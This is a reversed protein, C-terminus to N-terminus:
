KILYHTNNKRLKMNIETESWNQQEIWEALTTRLIPTIDTYLSTVEKQLDKHDSLLQALEKYQSM